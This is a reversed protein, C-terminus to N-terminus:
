YQNTRQSHSKTYARQHFLCRANCTEQDFSM